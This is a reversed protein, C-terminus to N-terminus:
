RNRYLAISIPLRWDAINPKESTLRLMDDLGLRKLWQAIKETKERTTKGKVNRALHYALRARWGARSIDGQHVVMEVDRAIEMIRYLFGTSVPDESNLKDNIWEADNLRERFREWTLPRHILATIRNRGADKSMELLDETEEVARNLPHNPHIISVGASITINPNNGTYTNFTKAIRDALALSQRWPGILLLDDGGAYVTYTDPFERRIVGQLYGSFYLDTMRSLQAFRSLTFKDQRDDARRLGQQFIYGLHDVDAKIVALFPKGRFDGRADPELAEAGIHSFLKPVGPFYAFDGEALAAYRPSQAAQESEFRPIYSAITRLPWITSDEKPNLNSVSLWSEKAGPIDPDKLLLVRVGLVDASHVGADKQTSLVCTSSGTLRRGVEVERQCTRCRHENEDVVEAPRVGCASCSREFPMERTLVGQRCTGLPRHKAEEAIRSIGSLIGQFAASKFDGGAFPDTLGLNLALSGTYNELLWRDYRVRLGEVAPEVSPLSPCLILFRGGAQQVICCRPLGLAEIALLAAVEGIAGLIFSRARLIKNVGKVGQRELTFLTKQIGSLDGALFRFKAIKEDRVSSVDDIGGKDQHYRLLCAAIAATTRSHDFLSIDPIDITSSPIGWTFRELLGLLSQEFLTATMDPSQTLRVFGSEFEQWLARYDEPLRKEEGAWPRPILTDEAYPELPKLRYGNKKPAGRGPDIVVEDFICRLPTRRFTEASHGLQPDDESRRDMGSSYRDALACIWAVAPNPASDPKHHFSAIDSVRDLDVGSPFTLAREKMLDFLANTFLVHRHTYVHSQNKPCLTAEMDFTKWKLENMSGYGRQLFKGIDHLLAGLVVDYLGYSM